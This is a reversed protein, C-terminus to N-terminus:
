ISSQPLSLKRMMSSQHLQNSSRAALKARFGVVLGSRPDREVGRGEVVGFRDVGLGVLSKGVRNYDGFFAHARVDSGQTLGHGLTVGWVSGVRIAHARASRDRQLMVSYVSGTYRVISGAVDAPFTWSKGDLSIPHWPTVAVSGVRCLMAAQVPTRLVLAVKRSGAPTRVKMGRKLKRIPVVRGSALELLTSGAFCVGHADRYRSMSIKPRSHGHGGAPSGGHWGRRVTPTPEPAPLNDFANDLRDRCANFLPSEVGYQLPGPDKFSNCIQRSHANYYSPLYHVGWKNFYEDTKIALSIQGKPEPGTLDEMLSQNLTDLHNRAPLDDLLQALEKQKQARGEALVRHEGDPGIPFWSSLYKCIRARSEHYAVEADSLDSAQHTISGRVSLTCSKQDATGFTKSDQSAPRIEAKDFELTAEVELNAPDLVGEGNTDKAVRRRVQLFIDRSQGYQLNGLLLQLAKMRKDKPGTAKPEELLVSSDMASEIQLSSPYTLALKANTAFTAQLNAVAHVFVTGIMGADPIFAYNGNGFEALSKLLGSRLSYGFGFTHITAPLESMSRLKPIYGAPPCMHNPMGDTLVMMAPVRSSRGGDKFVQIADRIGHWLNTADQPILSKINDKTKAKSADNMPVLDQIVKAKSGFTVIGLRDDANLTEVITLAAHKTLDLVSLGTDESGGEGPVPAPSGMSGSVDIVLVIDCPVHHIDVPPTRPPQVKVILAERSPVPALRLTAGCVEASVHSHVSVAEDYSPPVDNRIPLRM